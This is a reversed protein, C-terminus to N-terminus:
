RLSNLELRSFGRSTSSPLMVYRKGQKCGAYDIFGRKLCSDMSNNTPQLPKSCFCVNDPNVAPDELLDEPFSFKLVEIGDLQKRGTSKLHVSRCLEPYFIRLTSKENVGPRFFYGDTGDIKNCRDGGWYDLTSKNNYSLIDGMHPGKTRVQFTGEVTGNQQFSIKLFLALYLFNLLALSRTIIM